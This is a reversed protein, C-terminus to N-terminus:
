HAQFLDKMTYPGLSTQPGTWMEDAFQKHVMETLHFSDWFVHDSPNECLQYEKVIRKGGCSFVGRFEGTGCCASKGEKFGYHSPLIMRKRINTNFDYLSYKFGKSQKSLKNLLKSLAENHLNTISSAEEFCKGKTEEKVIRVGPLCGLEPLNIFGFKRGGIDYIDKIVATLNGIVMGVYQSQSSYTYLITSNNLALSLYDNTGISVLYVAKSLALEAGVSGLKKRLWAEVEKYNRLQTKLDIVSGQFTEVLAGAGSSAFNVGDYYHRFGPQLFPPILPLNAYEALFDSILRGDSFRGTPFKFYTEGYPWFNAQALTTTNLYNNNGADLYSDGFMFFAVGHKESTPSFVTNSECVPSTILLLIVVYIDLFIALLACRSRGM